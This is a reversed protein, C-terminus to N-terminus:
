CFISIQNNLLLMSVITPHTQPLSFYFIHSYMSDSNTKKHRNAWSSRLTNSRSGLGMNNVSGLNIPPVIASGVQTTMSNFTTFSQLSNLSAQSASHAGELEPDFQRNRDAIIAFNFEFLISNFELQFCNEFHSGPLWTPISVILIDCQDPPYIDMQFYYHDYNEWCNYSLQEVTAM